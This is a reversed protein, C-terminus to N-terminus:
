KPFVASPGLDTAGPDLDGLLVDAAAGVVMLDRQMVARVVEVSRDDFAALEDLCVRGVALVFRLERAVLDDRQDAVRSELGDLAVREVVWDVM